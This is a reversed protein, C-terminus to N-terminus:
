YMKITRDPFANSMKNTHIGTYMTNQHLKLNFRLFIENETISSMYFINIKTYQIKAQLSIYEIIFKFLKNRERKIEAYVIMYETFLTKRRSKWDKIENEQRAAGTPLTLLCLTLFFLIKKRNSQGSTLPFVKLM